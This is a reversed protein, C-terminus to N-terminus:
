LEDKIGKKMSQLLRDHDPLLKKELILKWDNEDYEDILNYTNSSNTSKEKINPSSSDLSLTSITKVITRTKIEKGKLYDFSTNNNSKNTNTNTNIKNTNNEFSIM